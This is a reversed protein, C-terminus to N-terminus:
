AVGEKNLISGGGQSKSEQGRECRRLLGANLSPIVLSVWTVCDTLLVLASGPGSEWGLHQTKGRQSGGPQGPEPSEQSVGGQAQGEHGDAGKGM